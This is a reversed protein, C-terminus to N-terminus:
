PCLMFGRLQDQSVGLARLLDVSAIKSKRGLFRQNATEIAGLTRPGVSGDPTGVDLGNTNLATQIKKLNAPDRMDVKGCYPSPVPTSAVWHPVSASGPAVLHPAPASQPPPAAAIADRTLQLLLSNRMELLADGIDMNLVDVVDQDYKGKCPDSGYPTACEAIVCNSAPGPACVDYSWVGNRRAGYCAYSSRPVYTVFVDEASAMQTLLRPEYRGFRGKYDEACLSLARARTMEFRAVGPLRYTMGLTNLEPVSLYYMGEPGTAYMQQLIPLDIRATAFLEVVKNLSVNIIEVVRSVETANYSREPIKMYPQHLGLRATEHALRRPYFFGEFNTAGSLYILSCASACEANEALLTVFSYDRVYEAIRLAEPLSGGPSNLSIVNNYPCYGPSACDMLGNVEIFQILKEADGQEIVGRIEIVKGFAASLLAAISHTDQYTLAGDLVLGNRLQWGWEELMQAKARALDAANRPAGDYRLGGTNSGYAFAGDAHIDTVHKWYGDFFVPNRELLRIEAALAAQTGGLCLSALVLLHKLPTLLKM